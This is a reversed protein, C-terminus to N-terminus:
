TACDNYHTEFSCLIISQNFISRQPQCVVKKRERRIVPFIRCQKWTEELVVFIFITGNSLQYFEAGFSGSFFLWKTKKKLITLATWSFDFWVFNPNGPNRIRRLQQRVRLQTPTSLETSHIVNCVTM